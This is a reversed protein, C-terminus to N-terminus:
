HGGCTLASNMAEVDALSCSSTPIQFSRVDDAACYNSFTPSAGKNELVLQFNKVSAETVRGGFNLFHGGTGKESWRPTRNKLFTLKDQNRSSIDAVINRSFESTKDDPFRMNPIAIMMERPLANRAYQICAIEPLNEGSQGKGHGTRPRVDQLVFVNRGFNGKLNAICHVSDKGLDGENMSIVYQVLVSKKRKRAALLFNGDAENYLAFTPFSKELVNRRRVLRCQLVHGQSVRKFIPPSKVLVVGEGAGDTTEYVSEKSGADYISNMGRREAAKPSMPVVLALPDSSKGDGEDHADKRSAEEINPSSQRSLITPTDRRRDIPARRVDDNAEIAPITGIDWSAEDEDRRFENRRDSFGEDEEQRLSSVNNDSERRYEDDDGLSDLGSAHTSEHDKVYYESRLSVVQPAGPTQLTLSPSQLTPTPSQLALTSSKLPQGVQFHSQVQIPYSYSPDGPKKAKVYIPEQRVDSRREMRSEEKREDVGLTSFNRISLVDDDVTKGENEGVLRSRVEMFERYEDFGVASGGEHGRGGGFDLIGGGNGEKRRENRKSLREKMDREEEMRRQQRAQIDLDTSIPGAAITSRKLRDSPTPKRPTQPRTTPRDDDSSPNSGKQDYSDHKGGDSGSSSSTYRRRRRHEGSSQRNARSGADGLSEISESKGRERRHRASNDRGNKISEVSESAQRPRDRASGLSETSESARRNHHRRHHSKGLGEVSESIARDPRHSHCKEKDRSKFSTGDRSPGRDDSNLEDDGGTSTSSDKRRRRREYRELGGDDGGSPQRREKKSGKDRHRSDSDNGDETHRRSRSAACDPPLQPSELAEKLKAYAKYRGVMEADARIDQKDPKRGEREYFAHEWEKIERKLEKVELAREPIDHRRRVEDPM